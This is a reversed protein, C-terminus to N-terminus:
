SASAEPRPRYFLLLQGIGGVAGLVVAIAFAGWGSLAAALPTHAFLLHDISIRGPGLLAIAIPVVALVLNYEWGSTTVFFGNKGTATRVAVIMLAVVGAAPLPTLVGAALGLGALVEVTAAARANLLGPRMGIRDFWAARGHIGGKGLFKDLGHVAIVLGILLRLILVAVDPTWGSSIM